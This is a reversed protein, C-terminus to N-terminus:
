SACLSGARAWSTMRRLSAVFCNLNTVRPAFRWYGEKVPRNNKATKWDGEIRSSIEQKVMIKGPM